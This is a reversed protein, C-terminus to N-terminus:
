IPVKHSASGRVSRWRKGTVSSGLAITSQMIMCQLSQALASHLVTTKEVAAWAYSDCHRDCLQGFLNFLAAEPVPLFAITFAFAM